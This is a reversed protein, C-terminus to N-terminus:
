YLWRTRDIHGDLETPPTPPGPPLTWIRCSRPDGARRREGPGCPELSDSPTHQSPRPTRASEPRKPEWAGAQRGPTTLLGPGRTASGAGRQGTPQSTKPSSGPGCGLRSRLGTRGLGARQWAPGPQRGHRRGGRGLDLADQGNVKPAGADLAVGGARTLVGAGPGGAQRQVVQSGNSRRFRVRLRDLPLFATWTRPRCGVPGVGM